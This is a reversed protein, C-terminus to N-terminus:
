FAQYLSVFYNQIILGINKPLSYQHIKDTKNEPITVRTITTDIKANPDLPIYILDPIKNKSPQQWYTYGIHTQDMM